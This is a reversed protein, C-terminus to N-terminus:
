KPPPNKKVKAPKKTQKIATKKGPLEAVETKKVYELPLTFYFTSGQGSESTVGIHGGLFEINQKCIYLGLGMGEQSRSASPELQSFKLFLMDQLEPAIGKGQDTIEVKVSKDDPKSLAITITQGAAGYKVANDVLNYIVQSIRERDSTVQVNAANIKFEIKSDNRKALEKLPLEQALIFEDFKFTDQPIKNEVNKSRTATLIQKILNTLKVAEEHIIDVYGQFETPLTDKKQGMIESLGMIPILPTKLEHTVINMFEDKMTNIEQLQSIRTERDVVIRKTKILAENYERLQKINDRLANVMTSFSNALSAVEDTGVLLDAEVTANLNGKEIIKALRTLKILPSILRRSFNFSYWICGLMVLIFLAVGVIESILQNRAIDAQLKETSQLETLILTATNQQVFLNQHNADNYDTTVDTLNGQSVSNVGSDCYSLVTNVTNKLGVFAIQSDPNTITTDLKGLLAVLTARNSNYEDLREKYNVYKILNNFSSILNSTDEIIQYESVMNETIDQYKKITLFHIAVFFVESIFLVSIVILFATLIKYKISQM